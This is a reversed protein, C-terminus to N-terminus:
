RGGTEDTSECRLPLTGPFSVRPNASDFLAPDDGRVIGGRATLAEAVVDYLAPGPEMERDGSFGAFLGDGDAALFGSTAITLRTEPAIAQGDPRRWVLTPGGPLCRVDGKVGSLPVSRGSQLSRVIARSLDEATFVM